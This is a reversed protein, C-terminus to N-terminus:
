EVDTTIKRDVTGLDDLCTGGESYANQAAEIYDALYNALNESPLSLKEVTTVVLIGKKEAM